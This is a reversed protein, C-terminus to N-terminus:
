GTLKARLHAPMEPVGFEDLRTVHCIGDYCLEGRGDGWPRWVLPDTIGCMQRAVLAHDPAAAILRATGARVEANGDCDGVECVLVTEDSGHTAFVCNADEDDGAWWEGMMRKSM